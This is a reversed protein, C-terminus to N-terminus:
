LTFQGGSSVDYYPQHMPPRTLSHMYPRTVQTFYLLCPIKQGGYLQTVESPSQPSIAFDNFLLWQPGGPRNLGASPVRQVSIPRLAPVEIGAATASVDASPRNLSERAPSVQSLPPRPDMSQRKVDEVTGSPCRVSDRARNGWSRSYSMQWMMATQGTASRAM